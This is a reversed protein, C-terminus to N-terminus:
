ATALGLGSGGGLPKLGTAGRALKPVSRPGRALAEWMTEEESPMPPMSVVLVGQAARRWPLWMWSRTIMPMSEKMAARLMALSRKRRCRAEMDSLTGKRSCTWTWTQRLSASMRRGRAELSASSTRRGQQEGTAAATWAPTWRMRMREMLAVPVM